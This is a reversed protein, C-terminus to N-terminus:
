VCLGCTCSVVHWCVLWMCVHMGLYQLCVYYVRVICMNHTHVYGFPSMEKLKSAVIDDKKREAEMLKKLVKKHNEDHKTSSSHTILIEFVSEWEEKAALDLATHGEYDVLGADAKNDLLLEVVEEEGEEAAVHLPTQKKLDTAHVNAGILSILSAMLVRVYVCVCVCVCVCM